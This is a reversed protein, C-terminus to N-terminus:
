HETSRAERAHTLCFHHEYKKAYVLIVLTAALNVTQVLVFVIDQIMAAHILFFASALCWLSYASLSIGASCHEAALHRIQPIYALAVIATGLFGLLESASM